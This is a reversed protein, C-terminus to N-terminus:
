THLGGDWPSREATDRPSGWEFWDREEETDYGTGDTPVYPTESPGEPASLLSDLDVSVSNGDLDLTVRDRDYDYSLSRDGTDDFNWTLTTDEPADTADGSAEEDIVDDTTDYGTDYSPANSPTRDYSEDEETPVPEDQADSTEVYSATSELPEKPTSVLLPMQSSLRATIGGAVFSVVAVVAVLVWTSLPRRPVPEPQPRRLPADTDWIVSSEPSLRIVTDDLSRLAADEDPSLDREPLQVTARRITPQPQPVAEPNDSPPPTPNDPIRSDQATSDAPIIPDLADSM